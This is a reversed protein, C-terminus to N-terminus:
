PLSYNFDYFHKGDTVTISFVGSLGVLDDTGSDPVVLITLSPVGKKMTASHQLIFSGKKGQLVGEVREIAVYGASKPNSTKASLMQGQSIGELDGKFIKDITMRSLMPIERDAQPIINVEFKGTAKFDM